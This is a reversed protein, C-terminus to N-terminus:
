YVLYGIGFTKFGLHDLYIEYKCGEDAELESRLKDIDMVTKEKPEEYFSHTKHWFYNAVSTFFDYLSMYFKTM